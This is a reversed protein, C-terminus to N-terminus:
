LIRRPVIVGGLLVSDLQSSFAGLLTLLVFTKEREPPSPPMLPSLFAESTRARSQRGQEDKGGCRSEGNGKSRPSSTEVATLHLHFDLRSPGRAGVTFLYSLPLQQDQLFSLKPITGEILLHPGHPGAPKHSPLESYAGLTKKMIRCWSSKVAWQAELLTAAFLGTEICM